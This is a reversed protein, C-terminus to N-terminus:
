EVAALDDPTNLNTFARGHPDVLRWESEDVADLRLGCM